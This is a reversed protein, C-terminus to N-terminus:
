KEASALVTMSAVVQTTLARARGFLAKEDDKGARICACITKADRDELAIRMRARLESSPAQLAALAVDVMSSAGALTKTSSFSRPRSIFAQSRFFDKLWLLGEHLCKYEEAVPSQPAQVVVIGEMFGELFSTM